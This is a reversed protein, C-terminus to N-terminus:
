HVATRRHAASMQVIFTAVILGPVTSFIRGSLDPMAQVLALGAIHAVLLAAAAFAFPCEYRLLRLVLKVGLAGALSTLIAWAEVSTRPALGVAVASFWISVVRGALVATLATAFNPQRADAM